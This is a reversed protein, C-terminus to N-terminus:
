KQELHCGGLLLKKLVIRQRADDFKANSVFGRNFQSVLCMYATPDDLDISEHIDGHFFDDEGIRAAAFFSKIVEKHM